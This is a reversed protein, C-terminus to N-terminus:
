LDSAAHTKRWDTWFDTIIDAIPAGPTLLSDRIGTIDARQAILNALPRSLKQDGMIIAGIFRTKGIAIRLRNVDFDSQAELIDPLHRWTESDGRAIGLLDPDDGRGITGVITTTLGALRTVNFPVTKKYPQNMGAMNRGAAAGQARATPWLTDLVARDSYPDYVQAVDGSAYVDRASTELYENALIGRDTDLGASKALALQPRVGVCLAVISCKIIDGAKTEIGVVKGKKGLIQKTETHYHIKVGDEILRHEVIKSEAEDLVGRWYREGRLLYHTKVGKAILGEVTELATIGGGIVVAARRFGRSRKIIERADALTDLKVVGELDAGPIPPQFATSGTAILVKNYPVVRNDHLTVQKVVPDLAVARAHLFKFRKLQHLKLQQEPLEGTIFYALGPRSYSGEKEDGIILIKGNPDAKEIAEAAGLGAAGAGIILYNASM